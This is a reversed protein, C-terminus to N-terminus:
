GVEGGALAIAELDAARRRAVLAQDDGRLWSEADDADLATTSRFTQEIWGIGFRLSM